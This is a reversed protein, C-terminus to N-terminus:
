YWRGSTEDFQIRAYHGTAIQHAGVGDLGLDGGGFGVEAVPAGDQDTERAGFQEGLHHHFVLVHRLDLM